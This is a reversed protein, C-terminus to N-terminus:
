RLTTRFLEPLRQPLEEVSQLHLFGRPGFITPLYSGDRGDLSICRLFVGARAAQQVAVASDQIGYSGRYGSRDEPKGDSLLILVRRPEPRAELMWTAHRIVAGLRTAGTARLSGLRKKVRDDLAEDFGKLRWLAIDQASQGNFGAFAHPVGLVKLGEAFLIVAEQQAHLVRGQTSGSLDVLTLVCVPRRRRVFRKHFDQRPQQGAVVDSYAIVLRDLDIEPGDPLGTEWREEQRLAEFRRRIRRVQASNAELVQEYAQMSGAPAEPESVRTESLKWSGSTHDWEDYERVEERVIEAHQPADERVSRAKDHAEDRLTGYAPMKAVEDDDGQFRAKLRARLGRREPQPDVEPVPIRDKNRAMAALLQRLPKNGKMWENTEDPELDALIWEPRIIGLYWPLPPPGLRLRKFHERLKRAQGLVVLHMAEVPAADVADIAARAEAGGTQLAFSTTLGSYLPIFAEPLGERPVETLNVRLRTAKEMASVAALDKAIGPFRDGYLKAIARAALLHWTSRLIWDRHLERLLPKKDLFGHAVLGAQLLAVVRYLVEDQTPQAPPPLNRPLLLHVIDTSAPDAHGLKFAQGSVMTLWALVRKQVHAVPTGAATGDKALLVPDGFLFPALLAREVEADTGHEDPEWTPAGM